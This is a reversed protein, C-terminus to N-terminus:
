EVIKPRGTTGSSAHYRIVQNFPVCFMGVPYNDRFDQKVTFPLNNLNKLTKVADVNTKSDKFRKRYFASHDSVYLLLHRLRKEQLKKLELQPMRELIPDWYEVM